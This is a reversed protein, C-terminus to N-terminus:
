QSGHAVIALDFNSVVGSEFMITGPQYVPFARDGLCAYFYTVRGYHDVM